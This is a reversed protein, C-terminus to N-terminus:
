IYHRCITRVKQFIGLTGALFTTM